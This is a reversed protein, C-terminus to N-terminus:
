YGGFSDDGKNAMGITVEYWYLSADKFQYIGTKYFLRNFIHAIGGAGHCIGADVVSNALLDRRLSSHLLTDIGVNTAQQSRLISGADILSIGIGLDGYCWGL